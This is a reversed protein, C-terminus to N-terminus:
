PATIYHTESRSDSGDADEAFITVEVKYNRGSVGTYYITNAHFSTNTDCMGEENSGITRALYWRGSLQQYIKIEKAGIRNMFDTGTVSFVIGFEGDECPVLYSYYKVLQDSAFPNIGSDASAPTVFIGLILLALLLSSLLKRKM